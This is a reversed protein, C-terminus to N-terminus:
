TKQAFLIALDKHGAAPLQRSRAKLRLNRDLTLLVVKVANATEKGTLNAGLLASRDVWHEDQWIAARLILDDMNRQGPGSTTFDVDETRVGLSTLFNGKSTQVKLSTSHSRFHSSIFSVANQAAEGLQNLEQALKDLEMIVPLPIIITWALSEVLSSFMSLMSLLINTDVVLVTYSSLLHLPAHHSPARRHSRLGRTPKPPPADQRNQLLSKLYRRRAKLEKVEESDGEDDDSDSEDVEGAEEDDVDMMEDTMRRKMRRRDEERRRELEEARWQQVKQELQGEVKWNRSSQQWHLGPVIHSLTVGCRILRVWRRGLDSKIFADEEDGDDDEITGDTLEGRDPTDLVELEPRRQLEAKNEEPLKWFGREYVRRGHWEMGRLCWDEPLPPASNSTLMLWREGQQPIQLGQSAMISRPVTAMFSTVDEWPVHRELMQLTPPHRLLTTLFTFIITLYPNINSRSYQSAKRLPHHLVHSFMTFSLQLALIFATPPDSGEPDMDSIPHEDIQMRDDKSASPRSPKAGSIGGLRKLVGDKKGYELMAGVNVAAMMIWEREEAGEIALREIFRALTPQFDDLQINTFIMGHLLLFLDPARADPFARKAQATPSWISLVAERSTSFSHTTILSKIFHYLSRLEEGPTQQSLCGLRYHLRGANPQDVLGASYWGIAITRWREDEPELAMQRAAALGVSPSPSDDIRAAPDNSLSRPPINQPPALSDSQEMTLENARILADQTLSSSTSAANAIMAAVAWRYRAVDGLAELWGHRFEGLQPEDLLGTYFTYAYYIYDQLHELAIPSTFSARRLSELLTNFGFGWLRVVMNYKVPINRLSSPASPALSIELLNHIKDVLDKHNSLQVRWKEQEADESAANRPPLIARSNEDDQTPENDSNIKGELVTITRYLKKLQAVFINSEDSSSPARPDATISPTSSNDTTSSLTFSSSAVSPAYSSASSASVHDPSPKTPHRQNSARSRAGFGVPDDKRHDFLQRPSSGAGRPRDARDHLRDSDPSRKSSPVPDQTERSRKAAPIPDREPDFLKSHKSPPPLPTDSIRLKRDFEDNDPQLSHARPSSHGAPKTAAKRRLDILRKDIDTPQIPKAPM